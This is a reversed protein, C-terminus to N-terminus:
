SPRNPYNAEQTIYVDQDGDRDYDFIAVGPRYNSVRYAGGLAERAVNTFVPISREPEAAPTAEPEPSCSLMAVILLATIILAWPRSHEACIMSNLM